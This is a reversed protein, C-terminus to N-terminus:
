KHVAPMNLVLVACPLGFSVLLVVWAILICIDDNLNIFNFGSSKLLDLRKKTVYIYNYIWNLGFAVFLNLFIYDSNISRFFLVVFCFELALVWSTTILTLGYIARQEPSSWSLAQPRKVFYLTLYYMLFDLLKM